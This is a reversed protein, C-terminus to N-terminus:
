SINQSPKERDALTKIIRDTQTIPLDTPLCIIRKSIDEAVPVKKPNYRYINLSNPGPYLLPSYWRRIFYGQSSLMNYAENAKEASEFLIPFALLPEQLKTVKSFHKSKLKKSYLEVNSSRRSYNTKLIGLQDLIRENIYKNTTLAEDQQGDQEFPYIPPELIGAKIEFSRFKRRFNGHLRQIVANNLRYTRVKLNMHVGPKKLRDFKKIIREYLGPNKEKLEPNIWIAGGFKTGTLVKEVGFSHVSIDALIKDNKDRAFRTICHAADEVLLLKHKDAYKRIATKDGIMGLTHQMVIAKAKGKCLKDDPKGTSLISPDIDHYVPTLGSILIPNISTICTYPTTIVEGDGLEDRIAEFVIAMGFRAKLCLHWDDANTDSLAALKKRVAVSSEEYNM